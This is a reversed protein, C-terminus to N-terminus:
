GTTTPAARSCTRAPAGYLYDSDEGGHQKDRGEEGKLKDHGAGQLLVVDDDETATVTKPSEETVTKTVEM